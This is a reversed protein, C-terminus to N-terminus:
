KFDVYISFHTVSPDNVKLDNPSSSRKPRNPGRARRRIDVGDQCFKGFLKMFEKSDEPAVMTLAAGSTNAKGRLVIATNTIRHSQHDATMALMRQYDGSMRVSQPVVKCYEEISFKMIEERKHLTHTYYLM